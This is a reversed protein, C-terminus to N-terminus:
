FPDLTSGAVTPSYRKRADRRAAKPVMGRALELVRAVDPQSRGELVLRRIEAWQHVGIARTVVLLCPRM